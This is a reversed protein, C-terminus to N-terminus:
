DTKRTYSELDVEITLEGLATLCYPAPVIIEMIIIARRDEM